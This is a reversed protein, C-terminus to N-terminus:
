IEGGLPDGVLYEISHNSLFHEQFSIIIHQTNHAFSASNPNFHRLNSSPINPAGFWWWETGRVWEMRHGSRGGPTKAKLHTEVLCPTGDPCRVTGWAAKVHDFKTKEVGFHESNSRLDRDENRLDEKIESQANKVRFSDWVVCFSM